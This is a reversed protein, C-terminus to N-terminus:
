SVVKVFIANPAVKTIEEKSIDLILFADYACGTYKPTNKCLELCQDESLFSRFTEVFGQSGISGTPDREAEVFKGHVKVRGAGDTTAM